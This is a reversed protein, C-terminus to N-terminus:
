GAPGEPAPRRTTLPEWGLLLQRSSGQARSSVIDRIGGEPGNPSQRLFRAAAQVRPTQPQHPHQM